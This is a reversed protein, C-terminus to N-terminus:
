LIEALLGTQNRAQLVIVVNGERDAQATSHPVVFCRTLFGIGRSIRNLATRLLALDFDRGTENRAIIMKAFWGERVHSEVDLIDLSLRSYVQCLRLFIKTQNIGWSVSGVLQNPKVRDGEKTTRNVM